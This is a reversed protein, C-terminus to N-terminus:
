PFTWFSPRSKISGGEYSNEERRQELYIDVCWSSKYFYQKVRFSGRWRKPCRADETNEGRCWMDSLVCWTQDRFLGEGLRQHWWHWKSLADKNEKWEWWLHLVLEQHDWYALYGEAASAHFCCGMAFCIFCIVEYWLALALLVFFIVIIWLIVKLCSGWGDLLLEFISGIGKFIWGLIGGGTFIILIVVIIGIIALIEM